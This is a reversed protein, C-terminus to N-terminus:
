ESDSDTETIQSACLGGHSRLLDLIIERNNKEEEDRISEDVDGWGNTYYWPDLAQDMATVRGYMVQNGNLENVNVGYHEILHKAMEVQGFLCAHHLLTGGDFSLDSVVISYRGVIYDLMDVNGANAAGLAGQRASAGHRDVLYEFTPLNGKQAAVFACWDKWTAGCELILYDILETSAIRTKTECLRELCANAENLDTRPDSKAGLLANM